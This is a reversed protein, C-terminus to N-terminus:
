CDEDIEDYGLENYYTRSVYERVRAYEESIDQDYLINDCLLSVAIDLDRFLPNSYNEYEDGTLFAVKTTYYWLSSAACRTTTLPRDSYVNARFNEWYEDLPSTDMGRLHERINHLTDAALVLKSDDELDKIHALHKVKRIMWPEKMRYSSPITDSCDRVIREVREGFNGRIKLLIDEGGKDEALDHFLAAIATDEDGGAGMVLECVGLPHHISPMKSSKRVDNAYIEVLWTFALIMRETNM